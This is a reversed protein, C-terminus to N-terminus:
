AELLFVSAIGLVIGIKNTVSLEENFIISGALVLAILNIVLFITGARSLDEYKLCMIWFASGIIYVLVGIILLVTQRELSWKKIYIDGIVELTVATMILIIALLKPNM